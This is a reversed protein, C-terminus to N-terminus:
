HRRGVPHVDGDSEDCQVKHRFGRLNRIRVGASPGRQRDLLVGAPVPLARAPPRRAGGLCVQMPVGLSALNSLLLLLICSSLSTYGIMLVIAGGVFVFDKEIQKDSEDQFSRMANCYVAIPAEGTRLPESGVTGAAADSNFAVATPVFIDKEYEMAATEAAVDNAGLFYTMQLVEATVQPQLQLGGVLRSLVMPTGSALGTVATADALNRVTDAISEDSAAALLSANFGFADFLSHVICGASAGAHTKTCVSRLGGAVLREHLRLARVLVPKHLVGAPFESSPPLAVIMSQVRPLPEFNAELFVSSRYVDTHQPVWVEKYSTALKLQSIGSGLVLVALLPMWVARCPNEGVSRGLREFFRACADHVSPCGM